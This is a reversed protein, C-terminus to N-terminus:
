DTKLAKKAGSLEDDRYLRVDFYKYILSPNGIRGFENLIQTATPRTILGDCVAVALFIIAGKGHKNDILKHLKNLTDKKHQKDIITDAFPNSRRGKKKPPEPAEQQPQSSAKSLGLLNFIAEQIADRNRTFQEEKEASLRKGTLRLLYRNMEDRKILLEVFREKQNLERDIDGDIYGNVLEDGAFCLAEGKTVYVDKDSHPYFVDAIKPIGFIGIFGFIRNIDKIAEVAEIETFEKEFEFGNKYLENTQKLEETM